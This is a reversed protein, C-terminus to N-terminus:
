RINSTSKRPKNQKETLQSMQLSSIEIEELSIPKTPTDFVKKILSHYLFVRGMCRPLHDWATNLFTSLCSVSLLGTLLMGWNETEAGTDLHPKLTQGRNGEIISLKKSSCDRYVEAVQKQHSSKWLLLSSLLSVSTEVLRNSSQRSRHSEKNQEDSCFSCSVVEM